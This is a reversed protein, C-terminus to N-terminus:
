FTRTVKQLREGHNVSAEGKKDVPEYIPLGSALETGSLFDFEFSPQAQALM